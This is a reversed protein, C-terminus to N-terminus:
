DSGVPLQRLLLLNRAPVQYTAATKAEEEPLAVTTWDDEVAVVWAQRHIIRRYIIHSAPESYHVGVLIAQDGPEFMTTSNQVPLLWFGQQDAPLINADELFAGKVVKETTISGIYTNAVADPVMEETIVTYSPIDMTALADETGEAKSKRAYLILTGLLPFTVLLVILSPKLWRRAFTLLPEILKRM